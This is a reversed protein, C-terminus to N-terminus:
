PFAISCLLASYNVCRPTQSRLVNCIFYIVICMFTETNCLRNDSVVFMPFTIKFLLVQNIVVRKTIWSLFQEQVWHVKHLLFKLNIKLTAHTSYPSADKMMNSLYKTINVFSWKAKYSLEIWQQFGPVQIDNNIWSNLRFM